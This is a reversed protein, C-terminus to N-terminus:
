PSVATNTSGSALQNGLGVAADELEKTRDPSTLYQIATLYDDLAAFSSDWKAIDDKSVAGILDNETLAPKTSALVRAIAQDRALQNAEVMALRSQERTDAVGKRLDALGDQQVRTTSCGGALLIFVWLAAAGAFRYRKMVQGETAAGM